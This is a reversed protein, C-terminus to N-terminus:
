VNSIESDFDCKSTGDFFCVTFIDPKGIEKKEYTEVRKEKSIKRVDCDDFSFNCM